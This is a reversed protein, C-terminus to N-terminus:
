CAVSKEKKNLQKAVIKAYNKNYHMNVQRYMRLVYLLEEVNLELYYPFGTGYLPYIYTIQSAGNKHIILSGMWAVTINAQM